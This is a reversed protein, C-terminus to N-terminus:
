SVNFITQYKKIAVFVPKSNYKQTDGNTLIRNYRYPLVPHYLSRQPAARYMQCYWFVRGCVQFKKFHNQPWRAQVTPYLSTFDHYRIKEGPEAKHYMEIAKTRGGYLSDCPNIRSQLKLTSLFQAVWCCRGNLVHNIKLASVKLQFQKRIEWDAKKTVPNLHCANFCHEYGHYFCGAFPQPHERPMDRSHDMNFRMTISPMIFRWTTSIPFINLGSSPYM